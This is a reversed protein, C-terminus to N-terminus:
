SFCMLVGLNGAMENFFMKNTSIVFIYQFHKIFVHAYKMIKQIKAAFDILNRLKYSFIM